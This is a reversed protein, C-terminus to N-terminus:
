HQKLAKLAKSTGGKECVCVPGPVNGACIHPRGGGGGLVCVKAGQTAGGGVKV